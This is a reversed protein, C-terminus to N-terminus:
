YQIQGDKKKQRQETGSAQYKGTVLELRPGSLFIRQVYLYVRLSAVHGAPLLPPLLPPAAPPEPEPLPLRLDGRTSSVRLSVDCSNTLDMRADSSPV